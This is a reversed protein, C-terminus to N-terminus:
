SSDSEIAKSYCKIALDLNNAKYASNGEHKWETPTKM